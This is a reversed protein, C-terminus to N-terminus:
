LRSRDAFVVSFKDLFNLQKEITAIECDIEHLRKKTILYETAFKEFDTDDRIPGKNIRLTLTQLRATLTQKYQLLDSFNKTLNIREDIKYEIQKTQGFSHSECCNTSHTTTSTSTTTTNCIETSMLSQRHCHQPTSSKIFVAVVAFILKKIM